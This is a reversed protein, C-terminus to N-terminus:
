ANCQEQMKGPANLIRSDLTRMIDSHEKKERWVRMFYLADIAKSNKRFRCMRMWKCGVVEHSSPVDFRSNINNVRFHKERM